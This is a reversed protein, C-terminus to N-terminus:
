FTIGGVLLVFINNEFRDLPIAKIELFRSEISKKVSVVRAVLIGPPFIGGIGTSALLDGPKVDSDPMVYNLSMFDGEGKLVGRVGSRVDEVHIYFSPDLNSIAISRDELVKTVVGVIGGSGIVAMAKKVGEKRGIDLVFKMEWYDGIWSVVRACLVKKKIYKKILLLRKLKANERKLFQLEKLRYVLILNEKKLKENEAIIRNAEVVSKVASKGQVRVQKFFFVLRSSLIM